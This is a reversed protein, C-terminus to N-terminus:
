RGPAKKIHRTWAESLKTKASALDPDAFAELFIDDLSKELPFNLSQELPMNSKLLQRLAERIEILVEGSPPTEVEKPTAIAKEAEEIAASVSSTWLHNFATRLFPEPRPDGLQQTLGLFLREFGAQNGIAYEFHSLPHGVPLSVQGKPFGILLPYIFGSKHIGGLLAGAEFTLWPKSHNDPTVLVVGAKLDLKERLKGFWLDGLKIDQSSVWPKANQMSWRLGDRLAEAVKRTQDGSWSIFVNHTELAEAM